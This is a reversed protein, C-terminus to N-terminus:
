EKPKDDFRRHPTKNELESIRDHDLGYHHAIEHWVTTRVEKQLEQISDCRSEIPLKFITIKDPIVFNYNNGRKTRPIGEYLGFLTLGRHLHLKVRQEATPEDEIIIAVNQLNDIYEKPLDDIAWAVVKEFGAEDVTYM